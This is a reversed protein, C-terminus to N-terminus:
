RDNQEDDYVPIKAFMVFAAFALSAVITLGGVSALVILALHPM